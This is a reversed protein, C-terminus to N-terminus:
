PLFSIQFHSLLLLNKIPYYNSSSWKTHNSSPLSLLFTTWIFSEGIAFSYPCYHFLTPLLDYPPLFFFLSILKDKNNTSFVSMFSQYASTGFSAPLFVLTFYLKLFSFSREILAFPFSLLLLVTKLYVQSTM